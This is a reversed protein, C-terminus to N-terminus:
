EILRIHKKKKVQQYETYSISIKYANSKKDELLLQILSSKVDNMRLVSMFFASMGM